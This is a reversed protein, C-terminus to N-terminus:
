VKWILDGLQGLKGCAAISKEFSRLSNSCMGKVVGVAVVDSSGGGDSYVFWEFCSIDGVLAVLHVGVVDRGDVARRIVPLPNSERQGRLHSPWSSSEVPM